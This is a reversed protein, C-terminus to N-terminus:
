CFPILLRKLAPRDPGAWNLAALEREGVWELRDHDTSASPADAVLECAYCALEIELEGVATVSRDFLRLVRIEVGLEELIERELAAPETEGPEPKGGPFEWEGAGSKHPARRGVLYENGRQIIAAVVRVRETLRVREDNQRLGLWVRSSGFTKM